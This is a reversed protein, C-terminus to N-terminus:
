HGGCGCGGGGAGANPTTIAFGQTMVDDIYDLSAGDLARASQPDVLFELAGVTVRADTPQPSDFSMGFRAGGSCACGGGGAQAFLRLGYGDHQHDAILDSLRQAALDSVTLHM